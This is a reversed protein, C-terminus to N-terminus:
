GDAPAALVGSLLSEVAVAFADHTEQLSRSRVRPIPSRAVHTDNKESECPGRGRGPHLVQGPRYDTRLLLDISNGLLHGLVQEVQRIRYRVTNPHLVLAAGAARADGGASLYALATERLRAAAATDDALAGLERAVPADLHVVQNLGHVGADTRGAVHSTVKEGCFSTIATELCEQVSFGNEQRQWGCFATGDYEITLKWRQTM